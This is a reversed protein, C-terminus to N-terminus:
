LEVWESESATLETRRAIRQVPVRLNSRYAEATAFEGWQQAAM